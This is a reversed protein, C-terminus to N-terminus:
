SGGDNICMPTDKIGEMGINKRSNIPDEVYHAAGNNKTSQNMGFIFHDALVRQNGEENNKENLGMDVNEGNISWNKRNRSGDNLSNSDDTEKHKPFTHNREGLNASSTGELSSSSNSENSQAEPSRIKGPKQRGDDDESHNNGV